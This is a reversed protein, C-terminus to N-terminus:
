LHQRLRTRSMLFFFVYFFCNSLWLSLCSIVIAQEKYRLWRRIVATDSQKLFDRYKAPTKPYHHAKLFQFSINTIWPTIFVSPQLSKETLLTPDLLSTLLIISSKTSYNTKLLKFFNKEVLAGPGLLSSQFTVLPM